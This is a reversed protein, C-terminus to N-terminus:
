LRAAKTYFRACNLVNCFQCINYAWHTRSLSSFIAQDRITLLMSAVFQQKKIPFALTVGVFNTDIDHRSNVAATKNVFHPLNIFFSSCNSHVCSLLVLIYDFSYWFIWFNQLKYFRDPVLLLNFCHLYTGDFALGVSWADRPKHIASASVCVDVYIWPGLNKHCLSFLQSM